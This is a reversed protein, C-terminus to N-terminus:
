TALLVGDMALCDDLGFALAVDLLGTLGDFGWVVLLALEFAFGFLRFIIILVSIKLTDPVSLYYYFTM